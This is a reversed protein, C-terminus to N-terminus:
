LEDLSSNLEVLFSTDAASTCHRNSLESRKRCVIGWFPVPGGDPSGTDLGIPKLIPARDIARSPTGAEAAATLAQPPSGAEIEVAAM